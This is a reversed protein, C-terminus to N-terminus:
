SAARWCASRRTMGVRGMFAVGIGGGVALRSSYTARASSIIGLVQGKSTVPWGARVTGHPVDLPRGTPMISIPRWQSSPVTRRAPWAKSCIVYGPNHAFTGGEGRGEGEGLSLSDTRYGRGRLPSLLTLPLTPRAIRM